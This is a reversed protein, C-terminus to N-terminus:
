AAVMKFTRSDIWNALRLTGDTLRKKAPVYCLKAHAVCYTDEFSCTRGCFSFAPEQPDGIPYRCTFETLGLVGLGPAIPAMDAIEGREGALVTAVVVKPMRRAPRRRPQLKVPKSPTARGALGLRHVKGIVANRTVGGLEKAIQAASYGEAWLKVARQTRAESWGRTAIEM